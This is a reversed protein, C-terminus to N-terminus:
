SDLHNTIQLSLWHSYDIYRDAQVLETATEENMPRFGMVVALECLREVDETLRVFTKTSVDKRYAAYWGLAKIIIQYAEIAHKKKIKM